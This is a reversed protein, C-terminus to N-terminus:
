QRINTFDLVMTLLIVLVAFGILGMIAKKIVIVGKTKIHINYRKM